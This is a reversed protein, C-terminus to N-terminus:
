VDREICKEEIMLKLAAELCRREDDTLRDGYLEEFYYDMHNAIHMM